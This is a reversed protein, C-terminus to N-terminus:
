SAAKARGGRRIQVSSKGSTQGRHRKRLLVEQERFFEMQARATAEDGDSVELALLFRRVEALSRFPYRRLPSIWYFDLRGTTKGRNRQRAIKTWGSPWDGMKLDDDPPSLTSVVPLGVSRQRRIPSSKSTTESSKTRKSPQKTKSKTKLNKPPGLTSAQSRWLRRTASRTTQLATQDDKTPREEPDGVTPPTVATAPAADPTTAAASASAKSSSRKPQSRSKGENPDWDDDGSDDPDSAISSSTSSNETSSQQQQQQQQQQYHHQQQLQQQQLFLRQQQQLHWYQSWMQKNRYQWYQHYRAYQHNPVNYSNPDPHVPYTQQAQQMPMPAIPIPHKGHAAAAAAASTEAAEQMQQFRAESAKLIAHQERLMAINVRHLAKVAPALTTGYRIEADREEETAGLFHRVRLFVDEVNTCCGLIHDPITEASSESLDFAKKVSKVLRTNETDTDNDNDTHDSEENDEDNNNNKEANNDINNNEDHGNMGNDDVGDEGNVNGENIAGDNEADPSPPVSFDIELLKSVVDKGYQHHIVLSYPDRGFCQTTQTTM